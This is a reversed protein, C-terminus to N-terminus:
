PQSESFSRYLGEFEAILGELVQMGGSWFTPDNLDIGVRAMLAQPSMSGGARLLELYGPEFRRGEEKYRRYLAMVLLEGFSYAYVYFPSTIFHSIYLWWIRHEEGLRVSDGFMAQLEAQWLDGGEETRM